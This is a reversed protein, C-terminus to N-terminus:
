PQSPPGRASASIAGMLPYLAQLLLVSNPVSCAPISLALLTHGPRLRHTKVLEPPFVPFCWEPGAASCLSPFKLHRQLSNLMSKGRDNEYLSNKLFSVDDKGSFVYTTKFNQLNQNFISKCCPTLATFALHVRYM